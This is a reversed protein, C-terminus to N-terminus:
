VAVHHRADRRAALGFGSSKRIDVLGIGRRTPSESKPIESESLWM